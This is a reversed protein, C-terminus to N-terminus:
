LHKKFYGYFWHYSYLTNWYIDTKLNNADRMPVHSDSLINNRLAKDSIAKRVDEVRYYNYRAINAWTRRMLKLTDHELRLAQMTEGYQTEEYTLEGDTEYRIDKSIRRIFFLPQIRVNGRANNCCLHLKSPLTINPRSPDPISGDCSVVLNDYACFHPYPPVKIKRYPHEAIHYYTVFHRLRPYTQFYWKVDDMSQPRHPLIHELTTHQKFSIRRMCYCCLGQQQNILLRELEKKKKLSPFDCNVYRNLDKNWSQELFKAVLHRGRKRFEKKNKDIWRMM